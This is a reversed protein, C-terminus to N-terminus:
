SAGPAGGGSGRGPPKAGRVGWWPAEGGPGGRAERQASLQSPKQTAFGRGYLPTM